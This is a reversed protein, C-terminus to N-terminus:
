EKFLQWFHGLEQKLMEAFQNFDNSKYLCINAGANITESIVDKVQLGSFTIVVIKDTIPNGRLIRIVEIGSEKSINLDLIIIRPLITMNRGLYKDRGFIFHLAEVGDKVWHVRDTLKSKLIASKSLEAERPNNEVLVIDAYTPIVM